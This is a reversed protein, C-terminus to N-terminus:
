SEEDSVPSYILVWTGGFIVAKLKNKYVICIGHAMREYSYVVDDTSEYPFEMGQSWISFNVECM